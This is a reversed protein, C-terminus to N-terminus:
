QELRKTPYRCPINRVASPRETWAESRPARGVALPRRSPLRGPSDGDLKGRAGPLRRSPAMSGVLTSRSRWM